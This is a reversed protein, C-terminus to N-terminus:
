KEFLEIQLVQRTKETVRYRHDIRHGVVWVIDDGSTLLWVREKDPVPMKLDTFYDSLKKSGTMGLPVFADGRRWRRLRLPFQLMELDVTATDSGQKMVFGPSIPQKLFRLIVPANLQCTNEEILVEQETDGASVPELILHERDATLRHSSSFFQKGSPGKLSEMIKSTTAEHFGYRQLWLRMVEGPHKMKLLSQKEIRQAHKDPQIVQSMRSDVCSNLVKEADRLHRFTKGLVERYGPALRELVPQLEHRVKNRQYKLTDNSRDHRFPLHNLRAYDEIQKRSAFLLPHIVDNQRPLISRLGSIGSGRLLNIFFTEVQDDQHHGAAVVSFADNKLLEDFWQFRLDRAVMQVSEKREEVEAATDFRKVLVEMGYHTGLEKVFNEDKDSESGRLQFNCHAIICPINAQHFLHAMVVSDAGGSVALIV